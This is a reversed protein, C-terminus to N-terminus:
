GRVRVPILLTGRVPYGDITAPRFAFQRLHETLAQEIGGDLVAGRLLRSRIVYGTSSVTVEVLVVRERRGPRFRGGTAHFERIAAELRASFPQPPCYDRPELALRVEPAASIRLRVGWDRGVAPGPDLAAFVLKQVSDALAPSLDHALVARRTNLGEPDFELTLLVEGASREGADLLERVERALRKEDLVEGPREIPVSTADQECRLQSRVHMDLPTGALSQAPRGCAVLPLALLLLRGAAYVCAQAPMASAHRRSSAVGRM